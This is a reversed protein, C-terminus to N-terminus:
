HHESYKDIVELSLEPRKIPIIALTKAIMVHASMGPTKASPGASLEEGIPVSSDKNTAVTGNGIDKPEMGYNGPIWTTGATGSVNNTSKQQVPSPSIKGNSNIVQGSVPNFISTQKSEKLINAVTTQTV